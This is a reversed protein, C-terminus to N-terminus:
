ERANTTEEIPQDSGMVRAVEALNSPVADAPAKTYIPKSTAFVIPKKRAEEEKARLEALKVISEKVSAPDNLNPYESNAATLVDLIANVTKEIRAAKNKNVPRGAVWGCVESDYVISEPETSLVAVVTSRIGYRSMTAKRSESTLPM